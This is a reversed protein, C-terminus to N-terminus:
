EGIQIVVKGTTGRREAHDHAAAIEQLPYTAEIVPRISGNEVLNTLECLTDPKPVSVMQRIRARGHVSSGLVALVGRFPHRFDVTITM